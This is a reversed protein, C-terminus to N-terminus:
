NIVFSPFQLMLSTENTRPLCTLVRLRFRKEYDDGADSDSDVGDFVKASLNFLAFFFAGGFLLLVLCRVNGCM